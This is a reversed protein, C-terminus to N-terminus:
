RRGRPGMSPRAPTFSRMPASLRPPSVRIGGPTGIRPSAPVRDPSYVPATPPLIPANWTGGFSFGPGWSWSPGFPGGMHFASGYFMPDYWWYSSYVVSLPPEAVEVRDFVTAQEHESSPTRVKWRVVFSPLADADPAGEPLWFFVDVAREVGRHVSLVPMEESPANVFAAGQPGAGGMEARVDRVDLTWPAEDEDNAVLIRTRLVPVEGEETPLDEVGLAVVGVSGTPRDPPIPTHAVPLGSATAGSSQAPRYVYTPTVCGVSLLGLVVATVAWGGRRALGPDGQHIM